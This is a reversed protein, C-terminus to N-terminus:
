APREAHRVIRDETFYVGTLMSTKCHAQHENEDEDVYHVEYIRDSKEGFWGPGFPDWHIDIVRGGKSQVYQRIRDRDWGGAILRIVVVLVIVLVVIMGVEM